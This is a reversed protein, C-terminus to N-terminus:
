EVIGKVSKPPNQNNPNGDIDIVCEVKKNTSLKIIQRIADRTAILKEHNWLLGICGLTRPNNGDPHIRLFSRQTSFRPELNFSFKVGSRIMGKNYRGTHSRDEYTDVFYQGNPPAGSGFGGASISIKNLEKEGELVSLVGEGYLSTKMKGIIQIIIKKVLDEQKATMPKNQGTKTDIYKIPM